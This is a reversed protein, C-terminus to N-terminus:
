AILEAHNHRAKAVSGTVVPMNGESFKGSPVGRWTGKKLDGVNYAPQLNITRETDWAAVIGDLAEIAAKIDDRNRGITNAEIWTLFTDIVDPDMGPDSPDVSNSGLAIVQKRDRELGM